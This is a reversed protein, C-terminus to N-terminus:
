RFGRSHSEVMNDLDGNTGPQGYARVAHAGVRNSWMKMIIIISSTYGHNTLYNYQAVEYKEQQWM